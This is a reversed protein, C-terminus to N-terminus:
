SKTAKVTYVGSYRESSPSWVNIYYTGASLSVSVTASLTGSGKRSSEDKASDSVLHGSSNCIWLKLTETETGSGAYAASATATVKLTASSSLTVKMYQDWTTSTGLSVTSKYTTGLSVTPAEYYYYTPTISKTTTSATFKTALKYGGHYSTSWVNIYYTGASLTKSTSITLTGSASRTASGSAVTSGSTSNTVWVYLIEESGGAWATTATVTVKLTGKKTLKVKVYQDWMTGLSKTSKYTTGLTATPATSSQSSVPTISKVTSTAKVITFTKKVSGTYSGKGTVTITATGVKVNNAYSM